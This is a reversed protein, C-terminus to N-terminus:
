RALHAMGSRVYGYMGTLAMYFLVAATIALVAHSLPGRQIFSSSSNLLQLNNAITANGPEREYAKLFKRHANVLPLLGVM